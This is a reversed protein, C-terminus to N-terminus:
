KKKPYIFFEEQNHKCCIFHYNLDIFMLKNCLCNLREQNLCQTLSFYKSGEELKFFIIKFSSNEKEKGSCLIYFLKKLSMIFMGIDHLESNDKVRLYKEILYNYKESYSNKGSEDIAKKIDQSLHQAWWLTAASIIEENKKM